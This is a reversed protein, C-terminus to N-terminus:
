AADAPTTRRKTSARRDHCITRLQWRIQDPQSALAGHELLTELRQFYERSSIGFEVFIDSDSGGGWHRWTLAFDIIDDERNVREEGRNEHASPYADRM